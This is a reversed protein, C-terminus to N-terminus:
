DPDEDSMKMPMGFMFLANQKDPTEIKRNIAEVKAYPNLIRAYPSASKWDGFLETM